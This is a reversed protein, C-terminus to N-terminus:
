AQEVIKKVRDCSVVEPSNRKIKDLDFRDGSMGSAQSPAQSAKELNLVPDSQGHAKPSAETLSEQNLAPNSLGTAQFSAKIIEDANLWNDGLGSVHPSADTVKELDFADDGTTSARDLLLSPRQPLAARLSPTTDTVVDSDCIAPGAAPDRSSTSVTRELAQDPLLSAGQPSAARVTQEIDTQVDSASGAHRSESMRCIDSVAQNVNSPRPGSQPVMVEEAMQAAEVSMASIRQQLAPRPVATDSM